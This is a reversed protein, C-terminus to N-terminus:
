EAGVDFHLRLGDLLSALEGALTTAEKIKERLEEIQATVKDVSEKAIELKVQVTQDM